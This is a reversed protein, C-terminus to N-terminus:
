RKLSFHGTAEKQLGTKPDIYEAKFWYDTSPLPQGNFTGDWGAGAPSLEKLLKGFRDFIYIKAKPQNKLSWINWTDNYGDNNPTFFKPFDMVTIIKSAPCSLENKVRVYVIHEGPMVNLFINSDQWSGDDLRYELVNGTGAFAFVEIANTDGFSDTLKVEDITIGPAMIVTASRTAICGKPGTVTVRYVGAQKVYISSGGNLIEANASTIAVEDKFWEFTYGSSPLGTELYHGNIIAGKDRFDYCIVGDKLPLIEPAENLKITIEIIATCLEDESENYVEARIIEGNSVEALLPNVILTGNQHYYRVLLEDQLAQTGIIDIDMITLDITSIGDNLHDTECFDSKQPPFAFVKEEVKLIFSSINFCGTVDDEVRVFLTQQIPAEINFIYSVANQDNIADAQRRYYKVIFSDPAGARAESDKEHLNFTARRDTNFECVLFPTMPGVVPKPKVILHIPVVVACRENADITRTVVRVFVVTSTTLYDEVNNIAGQNLQASEETSFYSYNYNGSVGLELEVDKLNFSAANDDEECKELIVPQTNVDPLPLVRVTLTTFSKCGWENTVSVYITQPNSINVFESPNTIADSGIQADQQTLHYTIITNISQRPLIQSERSTLDFTERGDNPLQGDCKVLPEPVTLLTPSKVNLVFSGIRKCGIPNTNNEISVWVTQPNGSNQYQTPNAIWNVGAEANALTQYFRITFGTLDGSNAELILQSQETLNFIEVGDYQNEFTDCKTIGPLSLPMNPANVLQFYIPYVTFCGTGESAIRIWIVPNSQQLNNYAHPNQIPWLNNQANSETEFYRIVFNTGAILEEGYQTLNITGFGGTVGAPNCIVFPATPVNVVPNPVVRIDMTSVSYCGTTPNFVRVHITQINSVVNQYNNPLPAAGSQADVVTYHFTVQLGQQNGIISSIRSQLNFLEFGDNNGDCLSYTPIVEPVIPVAMLRLDMKVVSFCGTTGNEVRVYVTQATQSSFNHVNAVARVGDRANDETLYFTIRYDVPNLGNLIQPIKVTLDFNEIGNNGLDCVFLPSPEIINPTALVKLQLPVISSCESNNYGVRVYITQNYSVINEYTNINRILNQGLQADTLTEHYTVVVGPPLPNGAILIATPELDFIERGDNLQDCLTLPAIEIARPAPVIRLVLPAITFCGTNPNYVRVYITAAPGDYILPLRLEVDGLEAESQLNYFSVELSSAGRNAIPVIQNLNFRAIGSGAVECSVLEPLNPVTPNPYLWIKFSTVEFIEFDDNKTVRVFIEQGNTAVFNSVLPEEIPNLRFQADNETLHYTATFDLNNNYVVSSYTTLDFRNEAPGCISMDPLRNLVISCDKPIISFTRYTSCETEENYIKVWITKPGQVITRIQNPQLANEGERADEESGHFSIILLPDISLDPLVDELNFDAVGAPDICDEIDRPDGAEIEPKVEFCFEKEYTCGMNNTVIATYCRTGSEQPNITITGGNTNVIEPNAVWSINRVEPQFSLDDPLIHDAFAISWGFIYGNDSRLHDQVELTWVGNLVSGILGAFTDAPMYDGPTISNTPGCDAGGSNINPITPGNILLTTAAPTFCYESGTGPGAAIDAAAGACPDWPYGLATSGSGPYNKLSIVQGSPSVLRMSLDGLYSHEMNICISALDDVSQLTQGQQFCDVTIYARYVLTPDNTDPLFTLEEVPPNCDFEIFEFTPTMTFTFDEGYCLYDPSPNIAYDPDPSVQIFLGLSNTSFCGFEDYIRLAVRYVGEEEYTHTITEGELLTGDGMDWKYVPNDSFQGFVGSGTLLVEQNKCARIVNNEVTPVSNGLRAIISQCQQQCSVDAKWGPATNYTDSVFRFTLCGSANNGTARLALPIDTGTHTSILPATIDDGDYIYLFDANQELAFETFTVMISADNGANPCITYIFNQTNGYDANPGGSDYFTGGCTHITGNTMNYNQAQVHTLALFTLM